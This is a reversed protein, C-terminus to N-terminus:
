RSSSSVQRPGSSVPRPLVMCKQVLIFVGVALLVDGLSFLTPKPFPPSGVFIDTLWRLKTEATVVTNTLSHGAAFADRVSAFGLAALAEGDIPMKGGNAVIAALNALAGAALAWVGPARWNLAFCFLLIFYASPYLYPAVAWM